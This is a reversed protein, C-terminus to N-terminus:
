EGGRGGEEEEAEPPLGAPEAPRQEHRAVLDLRGILHLRLVDLAMAVSRDQIQRRNGAFLFRFARAGADDCLGLFVLGVPKEGSGGTPGAIGTTAIAVSAPIVRRAGGAMAIAVAGSVAGHRRLMEEPVGLLRQKAANSYAVVDGLFAESAGAVRTLAGGLM